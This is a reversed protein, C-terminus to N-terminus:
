ISTGSSDKTGSDLACIIGVVRDADTQVVLNAAGIRRQFLWTGIQNDTRRRRAGNRNDARALPHQDSPLEVVMGAPLPRAGRTRQRALAILPKSIHVRVM